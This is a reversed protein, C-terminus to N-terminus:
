QFTHTDFPFNLAISHSLKLLIHMNITRMKYPSVYQNRVSRYGAFLIFMKVLETSFPFLKNSMDICSHVLM